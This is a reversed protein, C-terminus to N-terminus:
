SLQGLRAEHWHGAWILPFIVTVLSGDRDVRLAVVALVAVGVDTRWLAM